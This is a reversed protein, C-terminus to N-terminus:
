KDNENEKDELKENEEKPKFIDQWQHYYGIAFCSQEDLLLHSPFGSSPMKDMIEGILKKLFVVTAQNDIKSLHHNSLGILRGFVLIPTSSASGYFRDVITADVDKGLAREQIRELVAFLRGCLYGINNNEIDLSVKIEREKNNLIRNKRNLYAKLIAARIYEFKKKEFKEKPTKPKKRDMRTRNICQLQLWRPYMGGLLISSILAGEINSPINKPENGQAVALLINYVSFPIKTELNKIIDFDSFHEVIHRGIVRESDNIFFRVFLRSQNAAELGLVYFRHDEPTVSKGTKVSSILKQLSIVFADPNDSPIMGFLNGFFSEVESNSSDSWFLIDCTKNAKITVRNYPSHYLSNLATVYSLEAEKSVPANYGQEKYYSDFGSDVQFSVLSTKSGSPVKSHTCIPTTKKGTILCVYDQKEGEKPAIDHQVYEFLDKNTFSSVLETNNVIRFTINCNGKNKCKDWERTQKIYDFCNPLELFKKVLAFETNSPYKVILNGIRELFAKVLKPSRDKARKIADTIEEEIEQPIKGKNEKKKEVNKRIADEDVYGFVYNAKGWLLNALINSSTDVGKPIRYVRGELQEDTQEELSFFNGNNDIVVVFRIRVDDFGLPAIEGLKSKRQYYDYLAKLIM